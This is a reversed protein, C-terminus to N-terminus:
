LSIQWVSLVKLIQNALNNKLIIGLTFAEKVTQIIKLQPYIMLWLPFGM